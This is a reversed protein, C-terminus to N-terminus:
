ELCIIVYRWKNGADKYFDVKSTPYYKKIIENLENKQDYNFEFAIMAKQNLVKYSDKLIREYFDVGNKAFLALHPEYNLVNEDVENKNKIYYNHM